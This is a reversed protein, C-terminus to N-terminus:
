LHLIYQDATSSDNEIMVYWHWPALAVMADCAIGAMDYVVGLFVFRVFLGTTFDVVMKVHRWQWINGGLVGVNAFNTWGVGDSGHDLDGTAPTLRVYFLQRGTPLSSFIGFKIYEIDPGYAVSCELGVQGRYGYSLYHRMRAYTAGGSGNVLRICFPPSLATETFPCVTGDASSVISYWAGTGEKFNDQFVVHGIRDWSSVAGARVAHEALDDLGYLVSIPGILGWDPTGHPM